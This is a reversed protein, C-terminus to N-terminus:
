TRERLEQQELVFDRLALRARHLYVRVRDLSLDLIEGIEAYSYGEIDKLLILSRWVPNLTALARNLLDREDGPTEVTIGAHDPFDGVLRIKRNKRLLDIMKHYAVTFLYSKAKGAGIERHHIWLVEFSNQVIDRSDEPQRINKLM